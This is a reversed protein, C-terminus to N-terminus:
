DRQFFEPKKLALMATKAGLSTLARFYEDSLHNSAYEHGFEHILLDLVKEMNAPFKEFFSKGLRNLNLSLERGEYAARTKNSLRYIEATIDVGMIKKALAKSFILVNKQKETLQDESIPLVGDPSSQLNPTPSVKGAPKTPRSRRVNKWEEQSFVNGPIATYGESVANNNAESDGPDYIIGKQQWLWFKRLISLDRVDVINNNDADAKKNKINNGELGWNDALIAFDVLNVELDADADAPVPRLIDSCAAEITGGYGGMNTRAGNPAPELSYDDFPNGANICPSTDWEGFGTKLHFDYPRLIPNVFMPDKNINGEGPWVANPDYFGESDFMQINSYSFNVGSKAGSTEMILDGFEMGLSSALMGPPSMQVGTNDTVINGKGNADGFYAEVGGILWSWSAVNWSITCDDIKASNGYNSSVGGSWYGWNHTIRCTDIFCNPNNPDSNPDGSPNGQCYIGGASAWCHNDFVDVDNIETAVSDQIAIGGGSWRANNSAITSRRINPSGGKCYIGGGHQDIRDDDVWADNDRVDCNQITASSDECAIGGGAGAVINWSINCNNINPNSNKCYIGGGFHSLDNVDLQNVDNVDNFDLYQYFGWGAFNQSSIDVGINCRIIQPNSNENCFIAGGGADATCNIIICDQIGPSSNNTCFIAGGYGSADVNPDQPWNLDQAYGRRITFGQLLTFDPPSTGQGGQFIFARGLNNCDIIAGGPTYLGMANGTQLTVEKSGFDIDHEWYVLPTMPNRMVTIRDGNSSANIAAQITPYWPPAVGPVFLDAADATSVIGGTLIICGLFMYKILNASRAMIVGEM